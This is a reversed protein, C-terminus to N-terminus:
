LIREKVIWDKSLTLAVSPTGSHKGGGSQVKKWTEVNTISHIVPTDKRDWIFHGKDIGTKM